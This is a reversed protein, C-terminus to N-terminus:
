GGRIKSTGTWSAWPKAPRMAEQRQGRPQGLTRYVHWIRFLISKALKWTVTGADIVADWDTSGEAKAFQKFDWDGTVWRPDHFYGDVMGM